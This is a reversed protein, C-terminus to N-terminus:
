DTAAGAVSGLDESWVVVVSKHGSATDLPFPGEIQWRPYNNDSAIKGFCPNDTTMLVVSGSYDCDMAAATEATFGSAYGDWYYVAADGFNDTKVLQTIDATLVFKQPLIRLLRPSLDRVAMALESQGTTKQDMYLRYQRIIGSVILPILLAALIHRKVPLHRVAATFLLVFFPISVTSRKLMYDVAAGGAYGQMMMGAMLTGWIWVACVAGMWGNGGVLSYVLIGLFIWGFFGVTWPVGYPTILFHNLVNGSTVLVTQIAPLLPEGDGAIRIDTRYRLSLLLGALFLVIFAMPVLASPQGRIGRRFADTLLYVTLLGCLALGPTYMFALTYALMGILAPYIINKTTESRLVLGAGLLALASPYAAQEFNFVVWGLVPFLWPTLVASATLIDRAPHDALWRYLGYAFVPLGILFYVANGAQLSFVSRGFLLTPLAPIFYQKAPYGYLCTGAYANGKGKLLSVACAIEHTSEFSMFQARTSLYLITALSILVAVASLVAKGRGADCTLRILLMGSSVAFVLWACVWALVGVTGYAPSGIVAIDAAVM